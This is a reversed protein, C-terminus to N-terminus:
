GVMALRRDRLFYALARDAGLVHSTLWSALHDMTAANLERKGAAFARILEVLEQLLEDHMRKHQAMRLYRFSKMLSEEYAFHERLAVCLRQLRRLQAAKARGAARADALGNLLRVLDRHDEDIRGVGLELGSCWTVVAMGAMEESRISRRLLL